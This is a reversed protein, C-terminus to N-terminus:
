LSISPLGSKELLSRMAWRVAPVTGVAGEEEVVEGEGTGGGEETEAVDAAPTGKEMAAAAAPMAPMDM